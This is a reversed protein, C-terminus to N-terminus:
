VRQVADYLSNDDIAGSYHLNSHYVTFFYFFSQKETQREVVIKTDYILM